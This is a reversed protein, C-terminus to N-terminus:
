SELRQIRSRAVEESITCYANFKRRPKTKMPLAPCRFNFSAFMLFVFIERDVTYESVASIHTYYRAAATARGGGGGGSDASPSHEPCYAGWM